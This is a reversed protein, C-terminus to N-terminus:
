DSLSCSILLYYVSFVAASHRASVWIEKVTWKWGEKKKLSLFCYHRIWCTKVLCTLDCSRFSLDQLVASPQSCYQLLFFRLLAWFYLMLVAMDACERYPHSLWPSVQKCVHCEKTRAGPSAALSPLAICGLGNSPHPSRGLGLCAAVARAVFCVALLVKVHLM